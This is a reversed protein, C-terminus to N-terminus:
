NQSAPKRDKDVSQETQLREDLTDLKSKLKKVNQENRENDVAHQYMERAKQPLSIKFYVDGLHESIISENSELQHAKELAKIAEETKNRKFLVWGLTDLIFGDNPKLTLARRALREAIELNRTKDAYLYALYNLGEVHNKDMAVLSELKEVSKDSQGLQDYVAGLQYLIQADQPFKTHAKELVDKSSQYQKQGDLFSAYLSFVKPNDDLFELNKELVSVASGPDDLLKYLYATHMIGDAFYKSTKPIERFQQIAAHYDKVEEYVAGLYFRVRDSDPTQALISELLPIAEKYKKQDVLIFAMKLQANLNGQDLEIITKLHEYAKDYNETLLYTQVLSEAISVDPGYQTQFNEYLDLAEKYQKKKELISGLEVVSQVFNPEIQLSRQLAAEAKNMTTPTPRTLYTKGLYYWAIHSKQSTKTLKEFYGIAQDVKNEDLYTAGLLIEAEQNKPDNKLLEAYSARAKDHLGLVSYLSARLIQAESFDPKIKLAEDCETLAQSVLSARVYESALRFHTRYSTPDYVLNLKYNEIAKAWDGQMSYSEALTFHYDAKSQDQVSTIDEQNEPLAFAKPANGKVDYISSKYGGLRSFDWSSCGSVAIFTGTIVYIPNLRM